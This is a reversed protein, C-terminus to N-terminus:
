GGAMAQDIRARDVVPISEAVTTAQEALDRIM